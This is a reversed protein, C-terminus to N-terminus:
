ELLDGLPAYLKPTSNSQMIKTDCCKIVCEDCRSNQSSTGMVCNQGLSNCGLKPWFRTSGRHKENLTSVLFVIYFAIIEHVLLAGCAFFFM